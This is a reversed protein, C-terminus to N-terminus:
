IRALGIEKVMQKETLNMPLNYRRHIIKKLIQFILIDMIQHYFKQLNLALKQIFFVLNKKMYVIM